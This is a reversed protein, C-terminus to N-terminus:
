LVGAGLVPARGVLVAYPERHSSAWKGGAARRVWGRDTAVRAGDVLPALDRALIPRGSRM